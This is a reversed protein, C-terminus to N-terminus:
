PSQAFVVDRATLGLGDDSPASTLSGDPKVPPAIVGREAALEGIVDAVGAVTHQVTHRRLMLERGRAALLQGLAPDEILRLMAAALAAPDRMEVLLGTQEHRVTEPMGGARTAITPRAMLLSEITGGYNESLSCQVSVDLAALVDPIDGRRDEFIVAGAIGLSRCRERVDDRHREGAPGWGDGVLVFRADPRRALVLAAADVFDEQGKIGRGAAWPPVAGGTLVPYFFAVQGVLPVGAPVGLQERIRTGSATRPDFSTPDVGYGVTRRRSAPVRAQAYLENTRECGAVLRHDLRWTALDFRRMAPAELHYPGPIMAIRVPVRAITGALRAVIISAFVHSHVVDADMRRLIRAMRAATRLLALLHVGWVLRHLFRRRALLGALRGSSTLRHDMVAYPIGAKRLAAATSGGDGGIIASVDFGRARLGVAIQVMWLAGDVAGCVQVVRM